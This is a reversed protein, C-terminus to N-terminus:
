NGNAVISFVVTEDVEYTTHDTSLISVTPAISPDGTTYAPAGPWKIYKIYSYTGGLWGTNVYESWTYYKERCHPSATLGGEFVTFGASDKQVIIQSHGWNDYGHLYESNCIRLCSGLAANSVYDKLHAATLTLESDSLNRLSNNNDNFVSSFNQGWIKKYVNNAYTWCDNPSSTFDDWHVTVGNIVYANSANAVPVIGTLMTCVICITLFYSMVRKKM